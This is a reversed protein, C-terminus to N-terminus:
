GPCGPSGGGPPRRNSGSGLGTRRRVYPREGGEKRVVPLNPDDPRLPWSGEPLAEHGGLALRGGDALRSLLESLVQRQLSLDFYTFVLNRCLILHFTGEPLERRVDSLRLEVPERFGRRLCLESEVSRFAAGVWEEPADKLSAPPYCARRARELMTPHSDTALIELSVAPFREGLALAWIVALTYPEEGSACGVSWCRLRGDGRRAMGALHPLANEQLHRWVERDRFFRSITVRCCLDLAEWEEPHNELFHRYAGTDELGLEGLRRAVRRCVQRRVKRFGPWRM